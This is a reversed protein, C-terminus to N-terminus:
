KQRLSGHLRCTKLQIETLTMYCKEVSLAVLKAIITLDCCYGVGLSDIAIEQHLSLTGFPRKRDAKNFLKTATNLPPTRIPILNTIKLKSRM